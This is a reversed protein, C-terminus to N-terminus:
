ASAGILDLLDLQGLREPPAPRENPQDLYAKLEEWATWLEAGYDRLDRLLDTLSRSRFLCGAARATM